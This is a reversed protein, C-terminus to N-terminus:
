PMSQQQKRRRQQQQQKSYSSLVIGGLVLVGSAVHVMTMTKPYIIYSLVVTVVKRLTAVAVAVVSGAKQILRTYCWVATALAMGIVMLYVLLLLHVMTARIAEWLSGNITMVVVLGICGIGNANTMLANASLGLGGGGHAHGQHNTTPLFLALVKNPLSMLPRSAEHHPYGHSPGVISATPLSPVAIPAMLRQQINPTFADCFVSVLLLVVGTYSSSHSLSDGGGGGGGGDNEDGGRWGYGAAGACLLTAAMYDLGTYNSGKEQQLLTAVIMTPILKASKFVVKTPYSVYRVSLSALFTSGLVVVSLSIYPVCAPLTRPFSALAEGQSLIVPLGFCCAFQFITVAYPLSNVTHPFTVFAGELALEMLVMCTFFGIADWLPTTTTTTTHTGSSSTAATTTTGPATTTIAIGFPQDAKDEELEGDDDNHLSTKTKLLPMRMTAAKNFGSRKQWEPDFQFIACVKNEAATPAGVTKNM